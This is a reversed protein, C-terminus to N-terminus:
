RQASREALLADLDRRHIVWPGNPWAREGRLKGEVLWRLVTRRDRGVERAADTIGMYADDEPM